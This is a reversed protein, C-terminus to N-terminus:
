RCRTPTSSSSTTAWTWTSPTFSPKHKGRLRMAVISALRGLVVGEADILIWKKEIDAPTASFTKMGTRRYRCPPQRDDGHRVLRGAGGGGAHLAAGAPVEECSVSRDRILVYLYGLTVLVAAVVMAWFLGRGFIEEFVAILTGFTLDKMTTRRLGTGRLMANYTAKLAVEKMLWSIWLEELPAIIGPFSPTLNNNYDFEILMARGIRTILPCSTYGNYTETGERGEIRRRPSGRGGAGAM